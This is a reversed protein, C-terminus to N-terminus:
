TANASGVSVQREADFHKEIERLLKRKAACARRTWGFLECSASAVDNCDQVLADRRARRRDSPLSNLVAQITRLTGEFFEEPPRQDIWATLQQHAPTNPRVGRWSAIGLIRDREAQSISGGVCAVQVLPVLELLTVTADNYGLNELAEIIKPDNIGSVEAIRRHRAESAARRRMEDILEADVQHFYEEETAIHGAAHPM